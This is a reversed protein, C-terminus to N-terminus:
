GLQALGLSAQALTAPGVTGRKKPSVVEEHWSHRQRSVRAIHRLADVCLM